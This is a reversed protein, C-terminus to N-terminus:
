CPHGAISPKLCEMRGELEHIGWDLVPIEVKQLTQVICKQQLLILNEPHIQEVTVVM